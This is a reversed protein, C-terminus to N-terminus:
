GKRARLEVGLRDVGRQGRKCCALDVCEAIELRLRHDALRFLLHVVDPILADPGSEASPVLVDLGAVLHFRFLQSSRVSLLAVLNLSVNTSGILVSQATPGVGERAM